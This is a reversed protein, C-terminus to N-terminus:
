QLGWGFLINRLRQCAWGHEPATGAKTEVPPRRPYCPADEPNQPQQDASLQGVLVVGCCGLDISGVEMHSKRQHNARWFIHERRVRSGSTAFTGYGYTLRLYTALRTSTDIPLRCPVELDISSVDISSHFIRSMPILTPFTIARCHIIRM